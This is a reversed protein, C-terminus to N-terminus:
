GRVTILVCQSSMNVLAVFSQQTQKQLQKLIDRLDETKFTTPDDFRLLMEQREPNFDLIDYQFALDRLLQDIDLRKSKTKIQTVPYSLGGKTVALTM